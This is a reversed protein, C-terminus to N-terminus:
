KKFVRKIILDGLKWVAFAILAAFVLPLFISCFANM